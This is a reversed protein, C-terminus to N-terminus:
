NLRSVPNAEEGFLVREVLPLAERMHEFGHSGGPFCAVPAKAQYLDHTAASDLLEDGLDLLLTLDLKQRNAALEQEYKAYQDCHSQQWDYPEGNEFNATVGIFQPLLTSPNVAPNIMIARAGTKYALYESSFGGMSSGMFVVDYGQDLLQNWEFLLDEILGQFDRYDLNPAYLLVDREICFEQLVALKEKATLLKGHSDLSASNFGHLYVIARKM